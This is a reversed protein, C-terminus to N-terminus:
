ANQSIHCYCHKAVAAVTFKATAAASSAQWSFAVSEDTISLVIALITDHLRSCYMHCAVQM